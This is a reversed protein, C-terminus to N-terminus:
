AKFIGFIMKATLLMQWSVEETIAGACLTCNSQAAIGAGVIGITEDTSHDSGSGSADDTKSHDSDVSSASAVSV